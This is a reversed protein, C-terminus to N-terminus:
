EVSSSHVSSFRRYNLVYRTNKGMQNPRDVLTAIADSCQAYLIHTYKEIVKDWMTSLNEFYAAPNKAYILGHLLLVMSYIRSRFRNIIRRYWNNRCQGALSKALISSVRVVCVPCEAVPARNWCRLAWLSCWFQRSLQTEAHIIWLHISIVTLRQQDAINIPTCCVVCSKTFTMSIVQHLYNGGYRCLSYQQQRIFTDRHIHWM